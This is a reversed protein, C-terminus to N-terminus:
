KELVARVAEIFVVVMNEINIKDDVIQYSALGMKRLRSVDSLALELSRVLAPFDGPPLLWGNDPNVLDTQTGDAEAVLVPLAFSMAQQVALGGTGPLVFLDAQQYFPTLEGPPCSGFFRASPYIQSALTELPFREPGDGVIWLDPKLRDPLSSCARLLFDVRKRTQLRGVFLVVPGGGSFHAMRNPPPQSPRSAVANPAVFVRSPPFGQAIYNAAGQQSYTIMGDFQSLFRIRMRRRVPEMFDNRGLVGLGWGLVPKNRERMWRLAAQSHLNRPNAELILVDPQWTNLWNVLGRQYCLYFKGQLIHWNRAASYKAVEPKGTEISEELRPQGAFVSLGRSCSEALKDFFPVRYEALVRQQLGLKVNLQSM